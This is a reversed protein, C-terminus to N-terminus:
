RLTAPIVSGHCNTRPGRSPADVSTTRRTTRRVLSRRRNRHWAARPDRVRRRERVSPATFDANPRGDMRAGSVHPTTTQDSSESRDDSVLVHSSPRIEELERGKKKPRDSEHEDRLGPQVAQAGLGPGGSHEGVRPIGVRSGASNASGASRARSECLARWNGEGTIEDIPNTSRM